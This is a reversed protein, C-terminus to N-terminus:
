KPTLNGAKVKQNLLVAIGTCLMGIALTIQFFDHQWSGNEPFILLCGFSTLILGTIALIRAIKEKSKM